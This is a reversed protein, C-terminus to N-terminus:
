KDDDFLMNMYYETSYLGSRNYRGIGYLCDPDRTIYNPLERCTLTMLFGCERIVPISERSFRGFPYTFVIPSFGLNDRFEKQLLLLDESLAKRYSEESEGDIKGCGVRENYLSHMNYTHNGFEIRGSNNLEKMDEWTLYSYEPIHPDNVANVDTYSGVVSILAKMDYEELLPLLVSFNNYFGDDLTIMVSKQPLVGKGRTYDIVQEATVSTYGNNKLWQLDSEIQLKTVAYESPTDTCLSHYMIVPLRIPLEEKNEASSLMAKGVLFFAACVGFILADLMLLRIFNKMDFCKYM